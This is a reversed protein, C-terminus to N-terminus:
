DQLSCFDPGGEYVEQFAVKRSRGNRSVTSTSAYQQENQVSSLVSDEQDEDIEDPHVESVYEFSNEEAGEDDQDHQNSASVFNTAIEKKAFGHGHGQSMQRSRPQYYGIESDIDVVREEFRNKKIARGDSM